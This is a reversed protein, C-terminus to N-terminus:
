SKKHKIFFILHRLSVLKFFLFVLSNCEAAWMCKAILFLNRANCDFVYEMLNQKQWFIIIKLVSFKWECFYDGKLFIYFEISLSQINYKGLFLSNKGSHFNKTRLIVDNKSLFLIQLFVYKILYWAMSPRIKSM